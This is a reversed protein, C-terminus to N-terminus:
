RPAQKIAISKKNPIFKSPPIYEGTGEDLAPGGGKYALQMTKERLKRQDNLHKWTPDHDYEHRGGQHPVVTVGHIVQEKGGYEDEFENVAQEKLAELVLAMDDMVAKLDIYSPLAKLKGDQVKDYLLRYDIM